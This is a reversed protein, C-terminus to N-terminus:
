VESTTLIPVQDYDIIRTLFPGSSVDFDLQMWLGDGVM